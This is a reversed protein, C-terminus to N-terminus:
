NLSVWSAVATIDVSFRSLQLAIYHRSYMFLSCKWVGLFFGKSEKLCQSKKSKSYWATEGSVCMVALFCRQLAHNTLCLRILTKNIRRNKCRRREWTWGNIIRKWSKIWRRLSNWWDCMQVAPVASRSQTRIGDISCDLYLKQCTRCFCVWWVNKDVGHTRNAQLGRSM